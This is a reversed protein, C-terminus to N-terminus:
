EGREAQHFKQLEELTKPQYYLDREVHLGLAGHAQSLESLSFYGLEIEFGVVLGFFLYDVKPKDTDFYGDEDIYSGESAYWTPYATPSNGKCASKWCGGESGHKCSESCM